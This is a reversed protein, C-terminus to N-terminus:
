PGHARRRRVLQAASCYQNDRRNNRLRLHLPAGAWGAIVRSALTRVATVLNSRLPPDCVGLRRSSRRTPTVGISKAGCVCGDLVAPMLVFRRGVVRHPPEHAWNSRRTHWQARRALAVRPAGPAPTRVRPPWRAGLEAAPAPQVGARKAVARQRWGRSASTASTASV